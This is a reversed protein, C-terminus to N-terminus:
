FYSASPGTGRGGVGGSGCGRSGGGKKPVAM